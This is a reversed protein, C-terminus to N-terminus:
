VPDLDAWRDKALCADDKPACNSARERGVSNVGLRTGEVGREVLARRTAIARLMGLYQNYKDDGLESTAGYIVFDLDGFRKIIGAWADLVARDEADLKDSNHPFYVRGAATLAKRAEARKSERPDVPAVVVPEPEVTFRYRRKASDPPDAQPDTLWAVIEFPGDASAPVPIKATYRGDSGQSARTRGLPHEVVATAGPSGALIVTVEGPPAVTAGQTLAAGNWGVRMDDVSPPLVVRESTLKLEHREVKGACGVQGAAVGIVLVGLAIRLSM